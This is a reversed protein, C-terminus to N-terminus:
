RRAGCAGLAPYPSPPFFALPALRPAALIPLPLLATALRSADDAPAARRGGRERSHPSLGACLSPSLSRLEPRQRWQQRSLSRSPADSPGLEPARAAASVEAVVQALLLRPRGGRGGRVKGAPPPQQVRRLRLRLQLRRSPAPLRGGRTPVPLQKATLPRQPPAPIGAEDRPTPRLVELTYYPPPDWGRRCMRSGPAPAAGLPAPRTGRRAAAAAAVRGPGYCRAGSHILRLGLVLLWGGGPPGPVGIHLPPPSHPVPAATTEYGEGEGSGRLPDEREALRRGGPEEAPGRSDESGGGRGWGGLAAPGPPVRPAPQQRRGSSVKYFCSGSDASRSERSLHGQFPLLWLRFLGPFLFLPPSRPRRRRKAPLASSVRTAEQSISQLVAEEETVRNRAPAKRLQQRLGSSSPFWGVKEAGKEFAHTAEPSPISPYFTPARQHKLPM